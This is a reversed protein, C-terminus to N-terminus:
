YTHDAQKLIPFETREQYEVWWGSLIHLICRNQLAHPIDQSVLRCSGNLVSGCESSTSTSTVNGSVTLWYTPTDVGSYSKLGSIVEQGL